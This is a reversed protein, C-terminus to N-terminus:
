KLGKKNSVTLNAVKKVREFSALKGTKWEFSDLKRSENLVTYNAVKENSIDDRVANEKM